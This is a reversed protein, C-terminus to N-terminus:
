EREKPTQPPHRLLLVYSVACLCSNVLGQERHGNQKLNRLAKNAHCVIAGGPTKIELEPKYEKSM